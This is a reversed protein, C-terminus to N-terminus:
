RSGPSCPLRRWAFATPTAGHLPVFATATAGRLPATMASAVAGVGASDTGDSVAPRFRTRVAAFQGPAAELWHEARDLGFATLGTRPLPRYGAHGVVSAAGTIATIQETAPPSM